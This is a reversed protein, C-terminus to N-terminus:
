LKRLHSPDIRVFMAADAWAHSETTGVGVYGAGYKISTIFYMTNASLTQECVVDPYVSLVHKKNARVTM